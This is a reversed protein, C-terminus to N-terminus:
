RLISDWPDAVALRVNMAPPRTAAVTPSVQWTPASEMVALRAQVPWCSLWLSTFNQVLPKSSLAKFLPYKWGHQGAPNLFVLIASCMCLSTTSCPKPLSADLPAYQTFVM